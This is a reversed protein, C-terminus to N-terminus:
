GWAVPRHTTHGRRKGYRRGINQPRNASTVTTPEEYQNKERTQQQFRKERAIQAAMQAYFYGNVNRKVLCLGHVVDHMMQFEKPGREDENKPVKYNFSCKLLLSEFRIEIQFDWLIKGYNTKVNKPTNDFNILRLVEQDDIKIARDALMNLVQRYSVSRQKKDLLYECDEDLNKASAHLMSTISLVVGTLLSSYRNM